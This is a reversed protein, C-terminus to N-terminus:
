AAHRAHGHQAQPNRASLQALEIPDHACFLTVEDGQAKKLERLRIQNAKRSPGDMQLLTQFVSLGIPCNPDADMEGHFFYADGCHLMWGKDDRV